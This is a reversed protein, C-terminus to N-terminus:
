CWYAALLLVALWSSDTVMQHWSHRLSSAGDHELTKAAIQCGEAGCEVGEVWAGGRSGWYESYHNYWPHNRPASAANCHVSIFLHRSGEREGEWVSVCIVRLCM